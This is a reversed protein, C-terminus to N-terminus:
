RVRVVGFGPLRLFWDETWRGNIVDIGKALLIGKRFINGETKKEEILRRRRRLM